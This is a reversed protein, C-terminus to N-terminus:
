KEEYGVVLKITDKLQQTLQQYYTEEDRPVEQSFEQYVEYMNMATYLSGSIIAHVLSVDPRKTFIGEKCGMEVINQYFQLFKLKSEKLIQITSTRKFNLQERQLILYFNKLTRVRQVYRDIIVSLKEIASMEHNEMTQHIFDYGQKMRYVFIQEFLKEKSGFYYSIMSVNVNAAKAIERTSTASFGKEAFLVESHLLIHEEKSVM